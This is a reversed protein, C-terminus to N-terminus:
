IRAVLDGIFATLTREARRMNRFATFVSPLHHPHLLFYPV